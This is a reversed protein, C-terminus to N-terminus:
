GCAVSRSMLEVRGIALVRACAPSLLQNDRGQWPIDQRTTPNGAQTGGAVLVNLGAHVAAELFHAAQHTLTGFAVLDELNTAPVVFKRVNVAWHTRTILGRRSGDVWRHRYVVPVRVRSLERRGSGHHHRRRDGAIAPAPAGAGGLECRAPDVPSNCLGVLVIRRKRGVAVSRGPVNRSPQSM